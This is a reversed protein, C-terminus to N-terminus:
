TFPKARRLTKRNKKKQGEPSEFLLHNAQVSTLMFNVDTGAM